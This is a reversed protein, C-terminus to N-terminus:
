STSDNSNGCRRKWIGAMTACGMNTKHIVKREILVLCIVDIIAIMAATCAPPTLGPSSPKHNVGMNIITDSIDHISSDPHSTIGIIAQIGFRRSRVFLEIIEHTKGITSFVVIMDTSSLLGLDGHASEGPHKFASSTGNSCLLGAKKLAINGAKGMGTTIVKSKCASLLDIATVFADDLVM